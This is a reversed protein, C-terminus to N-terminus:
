QGRKNKSRTFMESVMNALVNRTFDDENEKNHNSIYTNLVKIIQHLMINNETVTDLLYTEEKHTM